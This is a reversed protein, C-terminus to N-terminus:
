KNAKTSTLFSGLSSSVCLICVGSPCKKFFFSSFFFVISLKNPDTTDCYSLEELPAM